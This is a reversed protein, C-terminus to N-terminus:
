WRLDFAQGRGDARKSDVIGSGPVQDPFASVAYEKPYLARQGEVAARLAQDAEPYPITRIWTM